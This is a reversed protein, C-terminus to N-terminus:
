GGVDIFFELQQRGNIRWYGMVQFMMLSIWDTTVQEDHVVFATAYGSDTVKSRAESLTTADFDDLVDFSGWITLLDVVQDIVNEMVALPASPFNPDHLGRGRWTVQGLPQGEPSLMPNTPDPLFSVAAIPSCNQFNSSLSVIIPPDTILGPFVTGITTDLVFFQEVDEIYLKEVSVVPHFALCYTWRLVPPTAALDRRDILIAEIPGRMGGVRFDGYVLPLIDAPNGPNLYHSARPLGFPLCLRPHPNTCAAGGEHPPSHWLASLENDLTLTGTGVRSATIGTWVERETTPDDAILAMHMLLAKSQTSHEIYNSEFSPIYGAALCESEVTMDLAQQGAHWFGILGLSGRFDGGITTTFRKALDPHAPDGFAIRTATPHGDNYAATGIYVDGGGQPPLGAESRSFAYAIETGDKYIHCNNMGTEFLITIQSYTGVSLLAANSRRVTIFGFLTASLMVLLSGSSDAGSLRVAFYCNVNSGGGGCVSLIEMNTNVVDPKVWFSCGWHGGSIGSDYLFQPTPSPYKLAINGDFHYAM